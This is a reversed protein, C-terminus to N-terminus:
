RTSVRARWSTCAAPFPRPPASLAPDSPRHPRGCEQLSDDRPIVPFSFTDRPAGSMRTTASCSSRGPAPKRWWSVPKRRCSSRPSDARARPPHRPETAAVVALSRIQVSDHTFITRGDHAYHRGVEGPIGAKSQQEAPASAVASAVDEDCLSARACMDVRCVVRRRVANADPRTTAALTERPAANPALRPHSASAAPAPTRKRTSTPVPGHHPHPTARRPNAALPDPNSLASVPVPLGGGAASALAADGLGFSASLGIAPMMNGHSRATSEPSRWPSGMDLM